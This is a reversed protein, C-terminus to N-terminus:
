YSEITNGLLSGIIDIAAQAPAEAMSLGPNTIIGFLNHNMLISIVASPEEFVRSSGASLLFVPVYIAVYMFDIVLGAIAYSFTILLLTIVLRPLASQISIVTQPDIKRRLMIMFGIIVFVVVYLLYAINRFARWLSLVPQFVDFGVGVQAYAPTNIPIGINYFLSAFYENSSVPKTGIFHALYKGTSRLAGTPEKNPNMEGVTTKEASGPNDTSVIGQIEPTVLYSDLNKLFGEIINDVTGTSESEAALLPSPLQLFLFLATFTALLYRM